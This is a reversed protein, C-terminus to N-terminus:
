ATGLFNGSRFWETTVLARFAVAVLGTQLSMLGLFAGAQQIFRESGGVGTICRRLHALVAASLAVFDVKRQTGQFHVHASVRQWAFARNASFREGSHPKEGAMHARMGAFLREGAAFTIASKGIPRIESGMHLGM